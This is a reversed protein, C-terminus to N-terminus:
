HQPPNAMLAMADMVQRATIEGRKYRAMLPAVDKTYNLTRPM